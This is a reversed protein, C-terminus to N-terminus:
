PRTYVDHLGIRRWILIPEGDKTELHFTARGDPGTFSWTISYIATDTLQHVRLRRPWPPNGTFSGSDIAPLFHKRLMERFLKQHEPPLGAYDRDFAATTRYKM